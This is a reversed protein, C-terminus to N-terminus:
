KSLRKLIADLRQVLEFKFSNNLSKFKGKFQRPVEQFISQLIIANYYWSESRTIYDTRSTISLQNVFAFIPYVHQYITIFHRM